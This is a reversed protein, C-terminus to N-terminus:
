GLIRVSFVVGNAGGFYNDGERLPSFGAGSRRSAHLAAASTTTGKAFPVSVPPLTITKMRTAGGFYNDGERLPSFCRNVMDECVPERRRLLQGRRSPSQFSSKSSSIAVSSVPRLLQGRRSPSQFTSD